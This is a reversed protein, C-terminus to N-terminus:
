AFRLQWDEGFRTRTLVVWEAGQALTATLPNGSMGAAVAVLWAAGSVIALGLSAWALSGLQRRLGVLNAPPARALRLAPGSILCEFAFVGTLLIVATYHLFRAAILFGEM